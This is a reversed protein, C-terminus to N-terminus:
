GENLKKLLAARKEKIQDATPAPNDDNNKLKEVFESYIERKFKPVIARLIFSQTNRAFREEAEKRSMYQLMRGLMYVSPPCYTLLAATM